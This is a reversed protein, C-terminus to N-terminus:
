ALATSGPGGAREGWRYRVGVQQVAVRLATGGVRASVAADANPASMPNLALTLGLLATVLVSTLRHARGVGQPRPCMSLTLSMFKVSPRPRSGLGCKPQPMPRIPGPHWGSPAPFSAGRVM